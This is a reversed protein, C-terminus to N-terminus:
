NPNVLSLHYGIGWDEVEIEKITGQKMLRDRASCVDRYLFRSDLKLIEDYMESISLYVRDYNLNDLNVFTDLLQISAMHMLINDSGNKYREATNRIRFMSELDEKNIPM